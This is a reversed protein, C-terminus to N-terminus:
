VDKRSRRTSHVQYHFCARIGTNGSSLVHKYKVFLAAKSGFKGKIPISLKQLKCGQLQLLRSQVIPCLSPERVCTCLNSFFGDLENRTQNRRFNEEVSESARKLQNEKSIKRVIRTQLHPTELLVTRVHQRFIIFVILGLRAEQGLIESHLCIVSNELKM